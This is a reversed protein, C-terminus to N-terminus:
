VWSRVLENVHVDVLDLSGWTHEEVYRNIPLSRQQLNFWLDYEVNGLKQLSQM